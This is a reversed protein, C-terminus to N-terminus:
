RGPASRCRRRGARGPTLAHRARAVVGAVVDVPDLPLAHHFRFLCPDCPHGGHGAVDDLEEGVVTARGDPEVVVVRGAHRADDRASAPALVGRPPTEQPEHRPRVSVASRSRGRSPRVHRHCRPLQPRTQNMLFGFGLPGKSTRFARHSRPQRALTGPHRRRRHEHRQRRSTADAAYEVSSESCLDPRCGATAAAQTM